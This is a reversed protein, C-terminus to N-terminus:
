FKKTNMDNFDKKIAMIWTKRVKPHNHSWPQEFNKPEFQTTHRMFVQILYIALLWKDMIVKIHNRYVEFRDITWGFHCKVTISPKAGKM